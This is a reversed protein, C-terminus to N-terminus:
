SHLEAVFAARGGGITRQPANATTPFNASQTTGAVFALGLSGDVAIANGQDGNSGGLFTSYVLQSGASNVVAVFGEGNAGGTYTNQSAVTNVPFTPSFTVGTVYAQMNNDVAVARGQDSDLGGLFTNYVLTGTPTFRAV